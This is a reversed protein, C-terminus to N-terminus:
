NIAVQVSNPVISADVTKGSRDVIASAVADIRAWGRAIAEFQVIGLQRGATGLGRQEAADATVTIEGGEVTEVVFHAPDVNANTYDIEEISRLRLL